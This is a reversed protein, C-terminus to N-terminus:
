ADVWEWGLVLQVMKRHFWCPKNILNFQTYYSSGGFRYGGAYKPMLSGTIKM